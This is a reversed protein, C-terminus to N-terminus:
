ESPSIASDRWTLVAGAISLLCLGFWTLAYVLHNNPLRVVTLGGVPYPETNASAGADIFYPAVPPDLQQALTMAQVDRSFWRGDRPANRRLFAGKPESARLLGTLRVLSPTETRRSFAARLEAPVFGRNVWVLGIDAKLPTMVWWGPGRETVAQVFVSRDPLFAGEIAVRTYADGANWRDFAPAAIAPAALRAEITAIVERKWALRSVQWAGLGAFLAALALCLALFLTRKM